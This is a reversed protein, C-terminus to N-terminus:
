AARRSAKQQRMRKREAKSLKRTPQGEDDYSESYGDSGDTWRPEAATAPQEEAQKKKGAKRQRSSRNDSSQESQSDTEEWAASTTTEKAIKVEAVRSKQPKSAVGATIDHRLFRMYAVLSTATLLYCGVQSLKAIMAAASGGLGAVSGLVSIGGVIAGIVLLSMALKSEKTDLLVRIGVWGMALGGLLLWWEAGGALLQMGTVTALKQAVVTHLGTVADVSLLVALVAAGRWLRHRGKYDDVRHRRVALVMVSLMAVALMATSAVWTALSTSSTADALALSDPGAVRGITERYIHIAGLGAVSALSGAVAVAPVLLQTPFHRKALAGGVSGDPLAYRRGEGGTRQEEAPSHSAMERSASLVEEQLIRRRRGQRAGSM